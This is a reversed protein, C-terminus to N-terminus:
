DWSGNPARVLLLPPIKSIQCSYVALLCLPTVLTVASLGNQAEKEFM